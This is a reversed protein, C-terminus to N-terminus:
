QKYRVAKVEEMIEDESLPPVPARSQVFRELLQEQTEAKWGFRRILEKLLTLDAVPVSLFVNQIETPKMTSNGLSYIAGAFNCIKVFMAM